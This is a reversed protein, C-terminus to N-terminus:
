SPVASALQRAAREVRAHLEPGPRRARRREAAESAIARRAQELRLQADARLAVAAEAELATAYGALDAIASEAHGLVVSSRRSPVRTWWILDVAVVILGAIATDIARWAFLGHNDGAMDLFTFVIPTFAACMPGYGRRAALPMAAGCVAALVTAPWDGPLIVAVAAAVLAGTATGSTRALARRSVPGLSPRFIFAVALPLWYTRRDQLASAIVSGACVLVGMMAAARLRDAAGLLRATPLPSLRWARGGTPRTVRRWWASGVARAGGPEGALTLCTHWLAGGFVEAAPAWVPGAFALGSAVIVGLLLHLSAAGATPGGIEFAGAVAGVAALLTWVPWGPGGARLVTAGLLFGLASTLSIALMRPVRVAAPDIGDQSVAWLAGLGVLMGIIRHGSLIGVALPAGIGIAARVAAVTLAARRRGAADEPTLQRIRHHM